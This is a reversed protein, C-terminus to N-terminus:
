SIRLENSYVYDEFVAQTQLPEHRSTRPTWPVPTRTEGAPEGELYDERMLVSLITDVKMELLYIRHAALSSVYDVESPALVLLSSVYLFYM